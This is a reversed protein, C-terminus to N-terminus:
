DVLVRGLGPSMSGGSLYLANHVTEVFIFISDLTFTAKFALPLIKMVGGIQVEFSGWTTQVVSNSAVKDAM